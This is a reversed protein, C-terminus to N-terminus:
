CVVTKYDCLTFSLGHGSSYSSVIVVCLISVSNLDRSKQFLGSIIYPVEILLLAANTVNDTNGMKFIHVQKFM